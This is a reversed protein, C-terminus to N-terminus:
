PLALLLEHLEVERVRADPHGARVPEGICVLQRDPYEDVFRQLAPLVRAPNRGSVTMDFGRFRADVGLAARVAALEAAGALVVPVAANALANRVVAVATRVFGGPGSFPLVDPQLLSVTM